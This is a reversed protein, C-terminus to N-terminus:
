IFAAEKVAKINIWTEALEALTKNYLKEEELNEHLIKAENHFSLQRAYSCVAGYGAMKYHMIHQLGTIIAADKVSPDHARNMLTQMEEVMTQIAECTEGRKQEYQLDFVQRIRMIMGSHRDIYGQVLTTLEPNHADDAVRNLENKIYIEANYLDRMQELMLDRLNNIAKM